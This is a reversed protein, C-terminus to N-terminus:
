CSKGQCVRRIDLDEPRLCRLVDAPSAKVYEDYAKVIGAKTPKGTFRMGMMGFGEKLNQIIDFDLLEAFPIGLYPTDSNVTIMLYINIELIGKYIESKRRVKADCM